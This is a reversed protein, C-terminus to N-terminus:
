AAVGATRRVTREPLEDPHAIAHPHVRLFKALPNLYERLLPRKGNVIQSIYPRSVGLADAIRGQTIHQFDHTGTNTADILAQIRRGVVLDIEDPTLNRRTATPQTSM